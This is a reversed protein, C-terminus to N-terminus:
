PYQKEVNRILTKVQNGTMEAVNIIAIDVDESFRNILKYGKSLSTGGKFVISGSYESDSLRKLLRTIWYDKEIFVERISFHDSAEKILSSFENKLEHLNIPNAM